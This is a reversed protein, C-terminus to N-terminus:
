RGAQGAIRVVDGDLTFAAGKVAVRTGAPPGEVLEVVGGSHRGTRVPVIRIRSNGDVVKVSAGDADYQVAAEPVSLVNAARSFTAKGFGGARLGGNGPLAIRVTVLGTRADVRQGILRVNGTLRAGSALLVDAPDGIALRAAEAEPLESFLEIQGGRAIRFLTTGTSSTDGPRAARELVVGDSPARITLHDRKVLLDNLQAATAAASAQAAQAGLRRNRIAEDSLVGEGDLGTVRAAQERAQQANTQQQVLVAQVQAVQSRLLSPDLVALVQGRQVHAGEEVTVDAIRYGNLDAAVAVEERPLLRGSATLGGSVAHSGVTVVTVSLPPLSEQKESRNCGAILAPFSLALLLRYRPPM